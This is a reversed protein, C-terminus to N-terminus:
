EHLTLGHEQVGGKGFAGLALPHHVQCM